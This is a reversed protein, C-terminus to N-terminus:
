SLSKAASLVVYVYIARVYLLEMLTYRDLEHVDHDHRLVDFARVHRGLSLGEIAEGGM